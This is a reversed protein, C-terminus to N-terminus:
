RRGRWARFLPLQSAASPTWNLLAVGLWSAKSLPSRSASAQTRAAIYRLGRSDIWGFESAHKRMFITIGRARMSTPNTLQGDGHARVRVTPEANVVYPSARVLRLFLDRDNAVPLGEDFGGVANFIRRECVLSSGTVGPGRLYIARATLDSRPVTIVGESHASFREIAAVVIPRSTAVLHQQALELHRPTWLDDDDLFAIHSSVGAAAGVNRSRSAGPLGDRQLFVIEVVARAAIQRVTSEAPESGDDSVVTISRPVVTQALVSELAERLYAPRGHTPVVVDFTMEATM